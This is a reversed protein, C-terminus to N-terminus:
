NSKSGGNNERKGMRLRRIIIEISKMRRNECFMDVIYVRM